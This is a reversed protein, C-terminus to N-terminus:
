LGFYGCYGVEDVFHVLNLRINRNLLRKTLFKVISPLSCFHYLHILITLLYRELDTQQLFHHLHCGRCNCSFVLRSVMDKHLFHHKPKRERPKNQSTILCLKPTIFNPPIGFHLIQFLHPIQRLPSSDLVNFSYNEWPYFLTEM